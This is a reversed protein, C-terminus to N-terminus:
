KRRSEVIRLLHSALMVQEQAEVADNVQVTRHSHPNKYSGIAGAFLDSLAQVESPVGKADALPGGAGFARRALTVGYDNPGFGGADRIAVEVARFAKFVATGLDGRALDVWVEDAIAPHLLAKPFAAAHAYARFSSESGLLRGRRSVRLWGSEGPLLLGQITLWNLAEDLALEVQEMREAPYAPGPQAPHRRVWERVVAPHVSGSRKALTLQLIPLALEQDSLALLVNVDPILEILASM